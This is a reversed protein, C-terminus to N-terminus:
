GLSATATAAAAAFGTRQEARGTTSGVAYNKPSSSAPLSAAAPFKEISKLIHRELAQDLNQRYRRPPIPPKKPDTIDAIMAEVRGTYPLGGTLLKYLLVGASYQDSWPGIRDVEGQAQEPPMYAITGLITGYETYRSVDKEHMVALGFDMLYVIRGGDGVMINGPKIDRHCIKM